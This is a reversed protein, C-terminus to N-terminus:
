GAAEKTGRVSVNCCPFVGNNSGMTMGLMRELLCAPLVAAGNEHVTSSVYAISLSLDELM